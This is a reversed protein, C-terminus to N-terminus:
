QLWVSRAKLKPNIVQYGHSKPCTVSSIQVGAISFCLCYHNGLLSMTLTLHFWTRLVYWHQTDLLCKVFWYLAAHSCSMFSLREKQQCPPSFGWHVDGQCRWRVSGMGCIWYVTLTAQCSFKSPPRHPRGGAPVPESSPMLRGSRWLYSQLSCAFSVAVESPAAPIPPTLSPGM